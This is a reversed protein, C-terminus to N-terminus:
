KNSDYHRNIVKFSFDPGNLVVGEFPEGNLTELESDYRRILEESLVADREIVAVAPLGLQEAVIPFYFSSGKREPKLTDLNLVSFMAWGPQRCHPNIALTQVGPGYVKGHLCLSVDNEQCLWLLKEFVDFPDVAATFCNDAALSLEMTDSVMGLRWEGERKACYVSCSCGDVKLTVDVHAGLPLPVVNQWREEDTKPIHFPLPGIAGIMQPVPAEYKTIGLFSALDEVAGDAPLDPFNAPNEVIGFSWEGRLRIARVRKRCLRRYIESWPADPLVTDPQILLVRQGPTFQGRPVICDYGLVTAIELRDANPHPRLSTLSEYSVLKM